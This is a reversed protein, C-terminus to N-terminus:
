REDVPTARWRTWASRLEDATGDPHREWWARVFANYEFQAGIAASPAHRTAEFCDLADGLTRGAEEALFRRLVENARFGPGVEAVFWDRLERSLVLGDPIVTARSMPPALRTRRVPPPEVVTEGALTARIRETLAAKPGRRSVGLETAFAALEAVTWYWRSFEAAAITPTLAPRGPQTASM